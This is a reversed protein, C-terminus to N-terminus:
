SNNRYTLIDDSCIGACPRSLLGLGKFNPEVIITHQNVPQGPYAWIHGRSTLTYKDEQHWFCNISPCNLLNTLAELDKAHCWLHKQRDLLWDLTVKYTPEDHGLLLAGKDFNVDIEVDFEKEIAEDIYKPSNELEPKSGNINGRHAILIM